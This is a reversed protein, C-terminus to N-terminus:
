WNKRLWFHNKKEIVITECIYVNMACDILYLYNIVNNDQNDEEAM